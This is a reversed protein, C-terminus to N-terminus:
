QSRVQTEFIKLCDKNRDKVVVKSNVENMNTKPVLIISSQTPLSIWGSKTKNIPIPIQTINSLIPLGIDINKFPAFIMPKWITQAVNIAILLIQREIKRTCLIPIDPGTYPDIIEHDNKESKGAM